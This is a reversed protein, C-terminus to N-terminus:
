LDNSSLLKERMSRDPATDASEPAVAIQGAASPELSLTSSGAGWGREAFPGKALRRAELKAAKTVPMLAFGHRNCDYALRVLERDVGALVPEPTPPAAHLAQQWLGLAIRGDDTIALEVLTYTKPEMTWSTGIHQTTVDHERPRDVWGHRECAWLTAVRTRNLNAFLLAPMSEDIDVFYEVGNTNGHDPREVVLSVYISRKQTGIITCSHNFGLVPEGAARHEELCALFRAQADSPRPM